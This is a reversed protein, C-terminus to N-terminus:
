KKETKDTGKRKRKIRRLLKADKTTKQKGTKKKQRKKKKKGTRTKQGKKKKNETQNKNVLKPPM